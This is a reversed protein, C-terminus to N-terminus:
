GDTEEQKLKQREEEMDIVQATRPTVGLRRCDEDVMLQVLEKFRVKPEWGLQKKAKAPNGQLAEVEAPRMMFRDFEVHEEWDLGVHSFATEVFERVTHMEGTALVFDDPAPQQLMLWFAEVFDKAYGWDRKADLTGLRLKFSPDKLCQAVGLSIKRTVFLPGRRPSNAVVMTGVGAVLKGSSTEVNFVHQNSEKIPRVHKISDSDRRWNSGWAYECPSNLNVHIYHRDNQQFANVNYEQKPCISGFLILLGQALLPSNSKFSQYKWQGGGGKLGNAAYYGRVFAQKIAHPANLIEMPVKKHKTKSDYILERVWSVFSGPVGSLQVYQTTGGFGSGYAKSVSANSAPFLSTGLKIFADQVKKDTNTLRLGKDVHGDGCLMGLFEAIPESFIKCSEHNPPMSGHLLKDGAVHEGAPRKTGDPTIMNHNPTVRVAGQKTDIILTKKQAGSVASLKTRSVTLLDVFQEGDWIQIGSGAFRRELYTGDKSVDKRSPVLSGIYKVDITSGVKVVIPTHAHFCEHNHTIGSCCYMKYAERYLHVMWHGALKAIAYPSRPRMVTEEDQPPPSDGWLESTSAQFIRSSYGLIKVAELVNIVGMADINFTALPQDFSTHVHSQAALNYIENPKARQILKMTSAFDTIDGEEIEIENELHAANELNRTANRRMMGVVRYGKELLFEALYSGDQGCVGTILATKKM